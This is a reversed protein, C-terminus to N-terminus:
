ELYYTTSGKEPFACGVDLYFGGREDNFFHRILLEEDFQSYVKTHKDLFSEVTPNASPAIMGSISIAIVLLVVTVVMISDFSKISPM